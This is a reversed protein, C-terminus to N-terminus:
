SEPFSERTFSQNQFSGNLGRIADLQYQDFLKEADERSLEKSEMLENISSSLGIEIRKESVSLKELESEVNEPKSYKVLVESDDPMSTWYKRNLTSSGNLVNLWAKVLNWVQTEAHQFVGYDSKAASMKEILALLRELGSAYQQSEGKITVTKPDVGQSSLFGSLQVELFAIAGSIDAQPTAFGFDTEVNNGKDNVLKLVYNPGIQISEMITELPGKMWAQAFGQMKVIQATESLRSNFEITFDTLASAQRVWYEFEKEESLEIYPTIGYQALPNPLPEGLIEGHYNM